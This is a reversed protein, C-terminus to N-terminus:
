KKVFRSLASGLAAPADSGGAAAAAAAADPAPFKDGRPQKNKEHADKVIHKKKVNFVVDQKKKFKKSPTAKGKAKNRMASRKGKKLALEREEKEQAKREAEQQAKTPKRFKGIIEPELTIMSPQLKDLLSHIEKERRQKPTEFPNAVFTDFNPEGAGPVIISSIGGSHGVVLSDEYPCFQFNRVVSRDFLKHTMYLDRQKQESAGRGIRILSGNGEAVLGKQSIDIWTVPQPVAYSHLAEFKRLDWVKVQCDMGATIMSRGDESVALSTVPGYHCMLGVLPYSMNPSWLGVTGNHHGLHIVANYHNLRMVQCTGRKTAHGAVMRGTSTDQYRLFGGKGITALLFHHPLFELKLVGRHDKLCHVEVGRKDYIYVYKKQAAAFFCENHLFKVDRTTERVQIETLLNKSRWEMLSLHGKRGGLVLFQGNRTFDVTYPGLEPLRLDFANRSSLLDVEHVIEAQRFDRTREVGEAELFGAEGQLLWHEVRAANLAAKEVVEHTRKLEVGIERREEKWGASKKETGRRYKAAREELEKKLKEARREDAKLIDDPDSEDGGKEDLDRVLKYPVIAQGYGQKRGRGESAVTVVGSGENKEPITSSAPESSEKEDGEVKRRKSEAATDGHGRRKKGM